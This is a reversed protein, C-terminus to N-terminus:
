REASESTASEGGTNIGLEQEKIKVAEERETLESDWKEYKDVLENEMNEKYNTFYTFVSYETKYDIIVFAAIVVILAFVAIKLKKNLIKQGGYLKQYKEEGRMGVLTDVNKSPVYVPKLDLPSATGTEVITARLKNMFSYGVVTSFVRENCAKMYIKYAVKGNSVDYKETLTKIVETEKVARDYVIKSDFEFSDVVYPNAM